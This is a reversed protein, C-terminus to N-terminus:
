YLKHRYDGRGLANFRNCLRVGVHGHINGSQVSLQVLVPINKGASEYTMMTTIEEVLERFEKMGTGKDRLIAVKHRRSHSM